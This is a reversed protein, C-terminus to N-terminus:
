DTRAPPRAPPPLSPPHSHSPNRHTKVECGARLFDAVKSMPVFYAVHPKGTTATGWYVKLDRQDLVAKIEDPGVVEQLNRTIMEFKAETGHVVALSGGAGGSSNSGDSAKVSTVVRGDPMVKIDLDVLNGSVPGAAGDFSIVVSPVNGAFSITLVPAGNGAKAGSSSPAAAAAPAAAGPANSPAAGHVRTLLANARFDGFNVYAEGPTAKKPAEIKEAVPKAVTKAAPKAAPKAPAANPEEKKKDDKSSKKAKKDKPKPFEPHDAPLKGKLDMLAGVAATIEDKSAKAGKLERV